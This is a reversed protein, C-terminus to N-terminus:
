LINDIYVERNDEKQKAEKEKRKPDHIGTHVDILKFITGIENKMM